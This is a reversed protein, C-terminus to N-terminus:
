IDFVITTELSGDPHRIINLDHYTAAKVDEGFSGVPALDFRGAAQVGDLIAFDTNTIVAQRIQMYFLADNLVDVLLSEMDPSFISFTESEGQSPRVGQPDLVAILGEIASIFLERQDKGTVNLRVDATHEVITFPPM